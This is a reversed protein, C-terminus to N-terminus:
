GKLADPSPPGLTMLAYTVEKYKVNLLIVLTPNPFTEALVLLYFTNLMQIIAM